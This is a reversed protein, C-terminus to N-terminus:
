VRPQLLEYHEYRLTGSALADFRLADDPRPNIPTIRNLNIWNFIIIRGNHPRSVHLASNRQPQLYAPDANYRARSSAYRAYRTRTDVSNKRFDPNRKCNFAIIKENDRM